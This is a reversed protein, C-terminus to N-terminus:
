IEKEHGCDLCELISPEMENDPGWAKWLTKVNESGCKECKDKENKM